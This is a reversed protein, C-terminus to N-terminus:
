GERREVFWRGTVQEGFAANHEFYLYRERNDVVIKYRDGQGGAREAYAPRVDLVRDIEYEQGDEWLLSRPFMRGNQDFDVKVSVYAKCSRRKETQM